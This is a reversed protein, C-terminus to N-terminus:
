CAGRVPSGTDCARADLLALLRVGVHLELRAEGDALDIGTDLEIRRLRAYLTTRHVFLRAAARPIDGGQELFCSLTELLQPGDTRGALMRLPEPVAAVTRDDVPIRALMRWAGLRDWVILPTHLGEALAPAITLADCAAAFSRDIQELRAVAPGRAAPTVGDDLRPGVARDFADDTRPEAELAAIMVGHGGATGTLCRHPALGRRARDLRALASAGAAGSADHAAAVVIAAYRPSPTLVGDTLVSRASRERADADDGVLTGVAARERARGTDHLLRDRYLVPALEDAYALAVAVEEAALPTPEDVLWLYGLLLEQFRIPLCWRPRMGLETNAPVWLPASAHAVGLDLLWQMVPEPARRHLISALRVDDVDAGHASFVLLGFRQDDVDVARELRDALADVLDQLESVVFRRRAADPAERSRAPGAGDHV